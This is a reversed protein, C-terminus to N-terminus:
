LPRDKLISSYPMLCLLLQTWLSLDFIMVEHFGEKDEGILDVVENCGGNPGYEEVGHCDDCCRYV